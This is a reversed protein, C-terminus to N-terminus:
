LLSEFMKQSPKRGTPCAASCRAATRRSTKWTSCRGAPEALALPPPEQRQRDAGHVSASSSASRFQELEQVVWRRYGQLRRAADAGGLRDRAPHAGDRRLAQRRALLLQPAAVSKPEDKWHNEIHRAVNKAVLAGGVKKAEFPSVQKYLTGV